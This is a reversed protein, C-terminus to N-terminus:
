GVFSASDGANPAAEPADITVDEPVDRRDIDRKMDDLTHGEFCSARVTLVPYHTAWVAVCAGCRGGSMGSGSIVIVPCITLADM